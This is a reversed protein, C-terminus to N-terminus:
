PSKKCQPPAPIRTRPASAARRSGLFRALRACALPLPLDHPAFCAKQVRGCLRVGNYMHSVQAIIARRPVYFRSTLAALPVLHVCVLAVLWRQQPRESPCRVDVKSSLLSGQPGCPPHARASAHCSTLACPRYLARKAIAPWILRGNVWQCGCFAVPTRRSPPPKAASRQRRAGKSSVARAGAHWGGPGLRCAACASERVCQQQAAHWARAHVRSSAPTRALALAATAARKSAQGCVPRICCSYRVREGM